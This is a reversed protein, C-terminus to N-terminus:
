YFSRFFELKSSDRCNPIPDHTKSFIRILLFSFFQQRWDFFINTITSRLLLASRFRAVLWIWKDQAATRKECQTASVNLWLSNLKGITEFFSSTVLIIPKGNSKFYEHIISSSWCVWRFCQYFSLSLYSAQFKRDAQNTRFFFNWYNIKIKTIKKEKL